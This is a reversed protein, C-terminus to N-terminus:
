NLLTVTPVLSGNSIQLPEIHLEEPAKSLLSLLAVPFARRSYVLPAIQITPFTVVYQLQNKKIEECKDGVSKVIVGCRRYLFQEM